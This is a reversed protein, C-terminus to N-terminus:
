SNQRPRLSDNTDRQGAIIKNNAYPANYRSCVGNVKINGHDGLLSINALTHSVTTLKSVSNNVIEIAKMRSAM